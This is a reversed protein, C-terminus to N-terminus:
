GPTLDLCFQTLFLLQLFALAGVADFCLFVWSGGLPRFCDVVVMAFPYEERLPSLLGFQSWWFINAVM